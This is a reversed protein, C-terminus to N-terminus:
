FSESYMIKIERNTYEVEKDEFITNQTIDNFNIEFLVNPVVAWRLAANIYGKGRGFTLDDFEYENDNLAADCEILLSFSRNLEKDFGIFFNIDDDGDLDEWSNKSLGVHLGFNGMMNWNKSSTIYFGLAKQEYRGGTFGEKELYSGKGQTNLGLVIAPWKTTESYARYKIIFGPQPNYEPKQYGILNHIGYAFGFTLNDTLGVALKPTVGGNKTLITEYTYSGKPLTGATPISVLELPPYPQESQAFILTVMVLIGLKMKM